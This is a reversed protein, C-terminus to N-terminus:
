RTVTLRGGGDPNVEADVSLGADRVELLFPLIDAAPIFVFYRGKRPDAVIRHKDSFLSKTERLFEIEVKGVGAADLTHFIREMQRLKPLPTAASATVLRFDDGRRLVWGDLGSTYTHEDASPFGAMRIAAPLGFPRPELVAEVRVIKRKSTPIVQEAHPFIVVRHGAADGKAEPTTARDLEEGVLRKYRVERDARTEFYVRQTLDARSLDFWTLAFDRPLGLLRLRTRVLITENPLLLGSNFVPRPKDAARRRDYLWDDRDAQYQLLGAQAFQWTMVSGAGPTGVPSLDRLIAARDTGNRLRLVAVALDGERPRLTPAEIFVTAELDDAAAPKEASRCSVAMLAGLCFLRAKM